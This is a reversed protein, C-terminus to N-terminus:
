DKRGDHVENVAYFTTDGYTTDDDLEFEGMDLSQTPNGWGSCQACVSPPGPHNFAEDAAFERLDDETLDEVAVGRNAAVEALREDSLTVTVVASATTSMNVTFRRSM